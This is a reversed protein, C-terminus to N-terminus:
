STHCDRSCYFCGNAEPYYRKAKEVAPRCNNFNGLSLANRPDPFYQCNAIHVEHDGNGQAIRNIYYEPM